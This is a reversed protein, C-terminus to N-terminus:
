YYYFRETKIYLIYFREIPDFRQGVRECTYTINTRWKKQEGAEWREGRDTIMRMSDFTEEISISSSVILQEHNEALWIQRTRREENKEMM